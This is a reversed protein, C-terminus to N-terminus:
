RIESTAYKIKKGKKPALGHGTRLVEKTKGTEDLRSALEITFIKCSECKSPEVMGPNQIDGLAVWVVHSLILVWIMNICILILFNETLCDFDSEFIPHTGM